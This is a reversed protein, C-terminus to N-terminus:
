VCMLSVDSFSGANLPRSFERLCCSTDFAKVTLVGAGEHRFVLFWLDKIGHAAVFEPWGRGLFAGSGDRGVEVRWVKSGMPSVLM